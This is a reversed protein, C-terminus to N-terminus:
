QFCIGDGARSRWSAHSHHVYHTGREKRHIIRLAYHTTRLPPHPADYNPLAGIGRKINKNALLCENMEVSFTRLAYHATRLAYHHIPRMM